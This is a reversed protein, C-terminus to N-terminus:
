PKLIIPDVVDIDNISKKKLDSYQFEASPKWSRAKIEALIVSILLQLVDAKDHEVTEGRMIKAREQNIRMRESDTLRGDKGNDKLFSDFQLVLVLEVLRQPPKYIKM